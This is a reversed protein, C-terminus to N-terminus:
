GAPVSRAIAKAVIREDPDPRPADVARERVSPSRSALASAVAVCAAWMLATRARRQRKEAAARLDGTAKAARPLAQPLKLSVARMCDILSLTPVDHFISNEDHARQLNYHLIRASVTAEYDDEPLSGCGPQRGAQRLRNDRPCPTRSAVELVANADRELL